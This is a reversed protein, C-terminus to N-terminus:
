EHFNVKEFPLFERALDKRKIKGVATKPIAQGEVIVKPCKAYSLIQRLQELIKENSVEGGVRVLFLGIEEESVTNRFGVACAEKIGLSKIAADIESLYILKGKRKVCEKIRGSLYFFKRDEIIKFYGSDGTHFVDNNFAEQTAAPNKFYGEFVNWGTVVLEGTVMPSDIFEGASNILQVHNGWVPTGASPLPADYMAEDFARQDLDPPTFLTFNVTESLGYAQNIRIKFKDGFIKLDERYLASSASIVYRLTSSIESQRLDLNLLRIIPPSLSAVTVAESKILSWFNLPFSGAYVIPRTLYLPLLFSFNFANVHFLPLCSMLVDAETLQGARKTGELNARLAQFRQTVAKPDGTTGSTFFFARSDGGRFSITTTSEIEEHKIHHLPIATKFPLTFDVLCLIAKIEAHALVTQMFTSGEDPDVPAVTLGQALLAGYALFTEPTNGSLVMVASGPPLQFIEPLGRVLGSVREVYDKFSWTVEKKKRYFTLFNSTEHKLSDLLLAFTQQRDDHFLSQGDYSHVLDNM